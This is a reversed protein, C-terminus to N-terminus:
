FYRKMMDYYQTVRDDTKIDRPQIPKKLYIGELRRCRSLAVYTQGFEFAGYGLDIIVHDFTKGQSKHITIAWALKLPLQSFTGLVETVIKNDAGKTYKLMEWEQKEVKIFKEQGSQGDLIKVTVENESSITEITGITGNVFQKQPDNKVFMVQAGTKLVLNEDTPFVKRKFVGEVRAKFIHPDEKLNNLNKLNIANATANLSCLTIFYSADEPLRTFRTNLLSYDEAELQNLRIKDLLDIFEREDQRYVKTLEILRTNFGYSFISASFFYPSEYENRFIEKEFPTSVVPPLQFLDGFFIVQVGGFFEDIERNVRLFLDMNDIVDARVMSVEDIILLDMNKYMRYDKVKRIESPNLIKPPFKFFSHITQGKVNLAAVGTPALVATRKKTTNRILQLITSKGTGARGTIFFHENSREIENLIDSFERPLSIPKRTLM